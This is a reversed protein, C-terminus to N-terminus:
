LDFKQHLCRLKRRNGGTSKGFAALLAWANRIHREQAVTIARSTRPANVQIANELSYKAFILLLKEDNSRTIRMSELISATTPCGYFAFHSDSDCASCRLAPGSCRPVHFCQCGYDIACPDNAHRCATPNSSVMDVMWWPQEPWHLKFSYVDRMNYNMSLLKDVHAALRDAHKREDLIAATSM